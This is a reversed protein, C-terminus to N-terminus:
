QAMMIYVQSKKECKEKFKRGLDSQIDLVAVRLLDFTRETALAHDHERARAGVHLLLDEEHIRVALALFLAFQVGLKEFQRALHVELIDGDLPVHSLGSTASINM